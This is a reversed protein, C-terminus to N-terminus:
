ASKLIERDGDDDGEKEGMTTDPVKRRSELDDNAMERGV